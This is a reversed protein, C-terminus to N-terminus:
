EAYKKKWIQSHTHFAQTCKKTKRLSYSLCPSSFLVNIIIFFHPVVAIISFLRLDQNCNRCLCVSHLSFAFLRKHKRACLIDCPSLQIFFCNSFLFRDQGSEYEFTGMFEFMLIGPFLFIYWQALLSFIQIASCCFVCVYICLRFLVFFSLFRSRARIRQVFYSFFSSFSSSSAYLFDSERTTQM